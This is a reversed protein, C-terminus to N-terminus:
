LYFLERQFGNYFCRRSETSNRVSKGGGGKKNTTRKEEKREGVSELYMSFAWSTDSVFSSNLQPHVLVAM